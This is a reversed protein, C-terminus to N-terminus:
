CSQAIEKAEIERPKICYVRSGLHQVELGANECGKFFISEEEKGIRRRWSMLFSPRAAGTYEVNDRDNRRQVSEDSNSKHTQLLFLLTKILNNYQKVYLLIDSAIVLDWDPCATPFADGWSHKIHPLVPNVGNVKCNHAINDEIESDDYDSTTIDIQFLKWLFIALGGTGSGLEIIRKGEIWSKHQVLWEAFAFSGPWLLNANLQHFTFERILLEMGPFQHNREVFKQQAEANEEDTSSDDDQAFLSSPSFLAIDM